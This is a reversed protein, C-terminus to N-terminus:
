ISPSEANAPGSDNAKISGLTSDTYFYRNGTASVGTPVQPEATVSYFAPRADTPEEVSMTFIYGNVVPRDGAFQEDLGSVTVLQQFTAFRGKNRSAYQAQFTRIRDLTQAASAENGAKIMAGWAIAGVGILIGIIAIVIMLEILNFGKQRRFKKTDVLM